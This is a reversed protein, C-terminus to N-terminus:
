NSNYILGQVAVTMKEATKFRKIKADGQSEREKILM